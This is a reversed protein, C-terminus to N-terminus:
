SLAQRIETSDATRCVGGEAEREGGMREDSRGENERCGQSCPLESQPNYFRGFCGTAYAVFSFLKYPLLHLFDLPIVKIQVRIEEFRNAAGSQEPGKLDSRRTARDEVTPDRPPGSKRARSCCKLLALFLSVLLLTTVFTVGVVTATYRQEGDVVSETKTSLELDPLDFPNAIDPYLIGHSSRLSQTLNLVKGSL